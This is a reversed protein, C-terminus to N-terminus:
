LKRTGTTKPQRSGAQNTHGGQCSRPRHQGQSSSDEHLGRRSAEVQEVGVMGVLNLVELRNWVVMGIFVEVQGVEVM